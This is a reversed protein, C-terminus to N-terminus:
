MMKCRRSRAINIVCHSITAAAVRLAIRQQPSLKRLQNTFFRVFDAPTISLFAMGAVADPYACAGRESFIRVYSSTIYLVELFTTETASRAFVITPSRLVLPSVIYPSTLKRLVRGLIVQSATALDVSWEPLQHAITRVIINQLSLRFYRANQIWCVLSSQNVHM